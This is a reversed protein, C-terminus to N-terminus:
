KAIFLKFGLFMFAAASLGSGILLIAFNEWSPIGGLIQRQEKIEDALQRWARDLNQYTEAAQKQSEQQQRINTNIAQEFIELKQAFASFSKQIQLFKSLNDASFSKTLKESLLIINQLQQRQEVVNYSLRDFSETLQQQETLSIRIATLENIFGIAAEDLVQERDVADIWSDGLEEDELYSEDFEEDESFNDLEENEANFDLM